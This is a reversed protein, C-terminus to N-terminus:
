VCETDGSSIRSRYDHIRDGDGVGGAFLFETARIAFIGGNAVVFKLTLNGDGADAICARESDASGESAHWADRAGVRDVLEGGGSGDVSERFELDGCGLVLFGHGCM